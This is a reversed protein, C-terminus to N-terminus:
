PRIEIPTGDAVSSFIQDIESNTLGICGNTWDAILHLRGVFALQPPLGHIMILGGPSVGLAQAKATDAESPYSIHLARHFASDTM